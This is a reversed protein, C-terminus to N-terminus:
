GTRSDLVIRERLILWSEGKMGGHVLEGGTIWTKHLGLRLVCRWMRPPHSFGQKLGSPLPFLLKYLPSPAPKRPIKAMVGFLYVHNHRVPNCRLSYFHPKPACPLLWLLLKLIEFCFSYVKKFVSANWTDNRWPSNACELLDTLISLSCSASNLYPLDNIPM